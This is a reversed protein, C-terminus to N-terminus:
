PLSSHHISILKKMDYFANFEISTRQSMMRAVLGALGLTKEYNRQASLNLFIYAEFYTIVKRSKEPGLLVCYIENTQGLSNGQPCQKIRWYITNGIVDISM